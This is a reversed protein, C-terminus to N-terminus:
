YPAVFIWQMHTNHTHTHTYEIVIYSSFGFMCLFQIIIRQRTRGISQTAKSAPVQQRQILVVAGHQGLGERKSANLSVILPRSTRTFGVSPVHQYSREFGHHERQCSLMIVACDIIQWCKGLVQLPICLIAQSLAIDPLGPPTRCLDMHKSHYSVRDFPYKIASPGPASNVLPLLLCASHFRLINNSSNQVM